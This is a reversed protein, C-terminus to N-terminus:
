RAAAQQKAAAMTGVQVERQLRAEEAAAAATLAARQAALAAADAAQQASSAQNTEDLQSQLEQLQLDRSSLLQLYFAIIHRLSTHCDQHELFCARLCVELINASM